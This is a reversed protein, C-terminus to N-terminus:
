KKDETKEAETAPNKLKDLGKAKKYLNKLDEDNTLADRVNEELFLDRCLTFSSEVPITKLYKLLNKEETKTVKDGVKKIYSLVDTSTYSILDKRAGTTYDSYKKIKDEVKTFHKLVDEATLPKDANKLSEMFATTAAMGVLGYALEQLLNQPTELAMLRSVAEWARRNPKTYDDISFDETPGQLLDPQEKLFGVLNVDFGKKDAYEFWESSSPTLKIHCFRSLLAKDSLDTVIFDETNPNMAAVVHWGEPLSYEHIKHDLILQFIAQLTDRKARNIEDLFLIGKSDPDTPFWSPVMFKTAVNNGKADKAFDALGLLDGVEMNGLRLDIFGIEQENTFQNIAQSKGIGHPGIIMPTIKAKLLYPLVQKLTKIFM